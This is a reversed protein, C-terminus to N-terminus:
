AGCRLHWPACAVTMSRGEGLGPAALPPVFRPEVDWPFHVWTEQAVEAVFLDTFPKGAPKAYLTVFQARPLLARVAQATEGSDALDDIVLLGEGPGELATLFRVDGRERGDYSAVCLTDVRRIDLERAIIAAPVLGGRAVAVISRWAGAKWEGRELLRRALLKSHRHLEDWGVAWVSSPAGTM